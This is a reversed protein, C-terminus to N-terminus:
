TTESPEAVPQAISLVSVFSLAVLEPVHTTVALSDPLV